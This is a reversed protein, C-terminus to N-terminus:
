VNLENNKLQNFLYPIASISSEDLASFWCSQSYYDFHLIFESQLWTFRINERDAGQIIEKIQHDPIQTLLSQSLLTIDEQFWTQTFIVTIHENDHYISQIPNKNM